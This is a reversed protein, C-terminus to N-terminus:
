VLTVAFFFVSRCILNAGDTLSDPLSFQGVSAMYGFIGTTCDKFKSDTQLDEKCGAESWPLWLFVSIIIFLIHHIQM